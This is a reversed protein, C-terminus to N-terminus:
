MSGLLALYRPAFARLAETNAVGLKGRLHAVHAEVTRVSVRLEQALEPTGRGQAVGRMIELERTSLGGPLGGEARGMISRTLDIFVAPSFYVRGERVDRLAQAFEEPSASKLLYGQAGSRLALEAWFLEPAGGVVLVSADTAEGVRQAFRQLGGRDLDSWDCIWLVEAAWKTDPWDAGSSVSWGAARAMSETRAVWAPDRSTLLIQFQSASRAGTKTQSATKVAIVNIGALGVLM